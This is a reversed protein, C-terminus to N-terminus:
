SLTKGRLKHGIWPHIQDPETTVVSELDWEQEAWRGAGMTLNDFVAKIEDKSMTWKPDKEPVRNEVKENYVEVVTLDGKLQPTAKLIEDTEEQLLWKEGIWSLADAVVNNKGKQYELSFTYPELDDIWHHKTANLNLSSM